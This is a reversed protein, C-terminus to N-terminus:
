GDHQLLWESIRPWVEERAHRGMILDHHGYNERHGQDKGFALHSTGFRASSVPPCQSDANGAMALIPFTYGSSQLLADYRKGKSNMIGRGQIIGSLDRLLRASVPHLMNAAMRRYLEVDVNEPCVMMSDILRPSYGSIHSQLLAAWHIPVFPVLHSLPALPAIARFATPLGSYDLTSGITIGSKIRADLMAARGYLLIGGLSHGIFHLADSGTREWAMVSCYQIGNRQHSSITTAIIALRWIGVIPHKSLLCM